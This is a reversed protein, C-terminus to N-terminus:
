GMQHLKCMAEQHKRQEDPSMKDFRDGKWEKPPFLAALAVCISGVILLAVVFYVVIKILLSM